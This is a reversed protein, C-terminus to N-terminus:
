GFMGRRRVIMVGSAALLVPPLAAVAIPLGFWAVGGVSWVLTFVLFGAALSLPSFGLPLVVVAAAAGALLLCLLPLLTTAAGAGMGTQEAVFRAVENVGEVGDGPQTTAPDGPHTIDISQSAYIALPLTAIESFPGYKVEGSAVSVTNGGVEADVGDAGGDLIGQVQYEAPEGTVPLVETYERSHFHVDEPAETPYSEGALRRMVRYENAGEVVSWQLRVKVSSASDSTPSVTALVFSPAQSTFPLSPLETSVSLTSSWTSYVGEASTKYRVRIQYPKNPILGTFEYTADTSEHTQGWDGRDERTVEIFYRWVTAGHLVDLDTQLAWGISISEDSISTAVLNSVQPPTPMTVTYTSSYDGYSCVDGHCHIARIAFLYTIGAHLGWVIQRESTGSWCLAWEVDTSRKCRIQYGTAQAVSNWGLELRNLRIFDASRSVGTVQAPTFSHAEVPLLLAYGIILAQLVAAVVWWWRAWISSSLRKVTAMPAAM